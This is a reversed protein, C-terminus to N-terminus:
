HQAPAATRLARLGSTLRRLIVAPDEGLRTAVERYTIGPLAAFLVATAEEPPLGALRATLDPVSRTTLTNVFGVTRRGAM